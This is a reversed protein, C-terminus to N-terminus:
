NLALVELAAQYLQKKRLGSMDAVERTADSLSTGTRYLAVVQKTAEEISLKAPTGPGILLVLEGRPPHQQIHLLLESSTGQICEQHIKTLERALALKHDPALATLEEVSKEIRHPSEFCISTGPYELCEAFLAKREGATKPLFGIFQFRSCPLGSLLLAVIPACPGPIADIKLGEQVVARVLEFGPDSILPTGADSVLVLNKGERLQKLVPELQSNENWTHYSWCPVQESEIHKLLIKTRRTDECLILDAEKLTRIARLSLDELNGIPTALLTLL